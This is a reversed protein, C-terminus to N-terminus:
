SLRRTTQQQIKKKIYDNVEKRPAREREASGSQLTKRVREDALSDVPQHWTIIGYGNRFEVWLLIPM